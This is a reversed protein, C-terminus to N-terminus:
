SCHVDHTRAMGSLQTSNSAWSHLNFNAGALISRSQNVYTIAAEQTSSGSIVNDAFINRRMDRSTPSDNQNLQYSIAANLM